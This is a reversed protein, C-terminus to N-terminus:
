AARPEAEEGGERPYNWPLWDGPNKRAQKPNRMLALLYEWPNSGSLKCSEILSMLIGGISAGHQTKYFLSNKRFLVFRKLAREIDNNDIPAGAIRLYATLEPYHNLVYNFAKGLQSNPEVTRELFQELMWERLAEMVPGSHKQHYELRQQKDMERTQRDNLFAMQFARLVVRCEEPFTEELEKFKRDAHALCNADLTGVEVKDNASLADSMKIPPPLGPRRQKLLENLNEGAHERGSKYIVIKHGEIESIIGSTHTGRRKQKSRHKDEKHISLIRVKTDDIWYIEGNAALKLLYNFVPLCAKAVEECREFQVSAPLPVGCSEQLNAQRYFPMGAGYKYLAIAVDATTDYRVPEGTKDDRKVEQPLEATYSTFCASCRLVPREYKTANIVPRGMLYITVRPEKLRHLHGECGSEPCAGGPLLQPHDLRVVEAGPYDSASRRGHGPKKPSRPERIAPESGESLSASASEKPSSDKSSEAEPKQNEEKAASDKKSLKKKLVFLVDRLRGMTMNKANILHLLNLFLRLVKEILQSDSQELKGQKVREILREIEDTDTTPIDPDNKM